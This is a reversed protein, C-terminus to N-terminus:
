GSPDPDRLVALRALQAEPEEQARATPGAIPATHGTATRRLRALSGTRWAAAGSALTGALAALALGIAGSSSRGQAALAAALPRGSATGDLRGARGGLGPADAPAAGDDAAAAELRPSKPALGGDGIAPAGAEAGAGGGSGPDDASAVTGGGTTAAAVIIVDSAARPWVRYGRQPQSGTTEQGLAGRVEIWTGNAPAAGLSARGPFAIRLPGSGDDIEFSVGGASTRSVRGAVAGRVVV